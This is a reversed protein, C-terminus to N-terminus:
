ICLGHHVQPMVVSIAKSMAVEQDKCITQTKKKWVDGYSVYWVIM